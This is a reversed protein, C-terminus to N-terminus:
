GYNVISEVFLSSEDIAVVFSFPCDEPLLVRWTSLGYADQTDSFTLGEVPTDNLTATYSEGTHWFAITDEGYVFGAVFSSVDEPAYDFTLTFVAEQSDIVHLSLGIPLTVEQGQAKDYVAGEGTCTFTYGNEGPLPLEPVPIMGGQAVDLLTMSGDKLSVDLAASSVTVVDGRTFASDAGYQGATIGLDDSLTWAADWAFDTESSYGLARLVFTLYQTASVTDTGSFTTASTGSTLGNEYAYGVYPKAWEAVDTFPIDWQGALADAEMGMLRVLLAVAEMRNPARDLDYNPTGDANDGVGNFLGLEHLRDAAQVAEDSAALAPLCLAVCLALTLALSLLRKNM